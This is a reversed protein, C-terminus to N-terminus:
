THKTRPLHTRDNMQKQEEQPLHMADRTLLVAMHETQHEDRSEKLLEGILRDRDSM